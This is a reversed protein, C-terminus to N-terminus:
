QQVFGAGGQPRRIALHPLLMFFDARISSTARAAAQPDDPPLAPSLDPSLASDVVEDDIAPSVVVEVDPAAAVGPGGAPCPCGTLVAPPWAVVVVAPAPPAVVVPGEPPPPPVVELVKPVVAVAPGGVVFNGSGPAVVV